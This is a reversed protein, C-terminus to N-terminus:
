DLWKGFKWKMNETLYQVWIWSKWSKELRFKMVKRHGDEIKMKEFKWFESFLMESNRLKLTKLNWFNLFRVSSFYPVRVKWCNWFKVNESVFIIHELIIGNTEWNKQFTRTISVPDSPGSKTVHKSTGSMMWFINCYTRSDFNAM